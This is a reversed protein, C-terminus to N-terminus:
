SWDERMGQGVVVKELEVELYEVVQCVMAMREELCVMAVRWLCGVVMQPAGSREEEQCVM